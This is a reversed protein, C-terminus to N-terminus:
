EEIQKEREELTKRELVCRHIEQMAENEYGHIFRADVGAIVADMEETSLEPLADAGTNKDIVLETIGWKKFIGMHKETLTAGDPILLVGSMNHVAKGLVMGPAVDSVQLSQIM